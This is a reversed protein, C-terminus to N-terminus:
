SSGFIQAWISLGDDDPDLQTDKAGAVAAMANVSRVPRSLSDGPVESFIIMRAQHLSWVLELAHTIDLYRLQLLESLTRRGDISSMFRKEDDRAPFSSIFSTYHSTPTVYRHVFGQMMEALRNASTFRSVGDRILELPNFPEHNGKDIAAEGQSFRYRGSTLGFCSLVRMRVLERTALALEDETILGRRLLEQGLNGTYESNLVVENVTDLEVLGRGALLTGLSEDVSNSESNIPRGALFDVTRQVEDRKITLRGTLRDSYIRFLLSTFDIENLNGTDGIEVNMHVGVAAQVDGLSMLPLSTTNPAAGKGESPLYNLLLEHLADMSFPKHIFDDAGFRALDSELQSINRYVASMVVVPVDRNSSKIRRCVEFGNIGPLLLDILCLDPKSAEFVSLAKEGDFSGVAELGLANVFGRYIYNLDEQDEVILVKAGKRPMKDADVGATRARALPEDDSSSVAATASSSVKDTLQPLWSVLARQVDINACPKPLFDDADSASMDQAVMARDAFIASTMVVPIMKGGLRTKIVKCVEFGDLGPLLVDLFCIDPSRAEFARLAGQGDDVTIIELGLDRSLARLSLGLEEQEEAVLIKLM